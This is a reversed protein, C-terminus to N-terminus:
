TENEFIKGIESLELDLALIINKKTELRCGKGKEICEITEVSLGAKRALEARSLFISERYNKLRNEKRELGMRDAVEQQNIDFRHRL